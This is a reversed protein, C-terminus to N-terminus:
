WVIEIEQQGNFGTFDIHGVESITEPPINNPTFIGGDYNPDKFLKIDAPLKSVDIKIVAWKNDDRYGDYGSEAASSAKMRSFEYALGLVYGESTDGNLLYVREPFNFRLNKSKPVIGNKLIKELYYEPTIHLLYKQSSLIEETDNDKPNKEEFVDTQYIGNMSYTTSKTVSYSYGCYEFAARVLKEATKEPYYTCYIKKGGGKPVVIEFLEKPLRLARSVYNVTQEPPYTNILGETIIPKSIDCESLFMGVPSGFGIDYIKYKEDKYTEDIINGFSDIFVRMRKGEETYVMIYEKRLYVFFGSFM